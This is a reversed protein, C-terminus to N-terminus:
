RQNGEQLWEDPRLEDAPPYFLGPLDARVIAVCAIVGCIGAGLFACVTLPDFM